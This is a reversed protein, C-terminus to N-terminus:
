KSKNKKQIESPRIGHCYHLRGGFENRYRADPDIGRWKKPEQIKKRM